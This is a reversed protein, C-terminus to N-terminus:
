TVAPAIAQALAQVLSIGDDFDGNHQTLVAMLVPQGHVTLVGLSNVLWRGGDDDVNLWGNKNAFDTGADAIVGVGWRQDAEVNRMLGLIVQQSSAELPGGVRVLNRLLTLQDTADTTTLGWYDSPGLVTDHLGLRVNAATIADRGGVAWFLTEAADNDSNEIMRTATALDSDSLSTGADQDQLLLTQLIDLKVISGTDMGGSSGDSFSAGTTLNLAAVSVGTPGVGQTLKTVALKAHDATIEAPDATPAPKPAATTPQASKSGASKPTGTNSPAAAREQAGANPALLDHVAFAALLALLSVGVALLTSRRRSRGPRNTM